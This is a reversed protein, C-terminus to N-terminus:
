RVRDPCLLSSGAVGQIDRTPLPLFLPTGYGFIVIEGSAHDFGYRLPKGRRGRGQVVILDPYSGALWIYAQQMATLNTKVMEAFWLFHPSGLNLM